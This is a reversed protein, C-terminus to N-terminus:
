SASPPTAVTCRVDPARGIRRDLTVLPAQILEALSGYSADHSSLNHRLEWVRPLPLEYPWFEIPLGVLDDHAQSAQDTSVTGAREFRRIINASEFAAFRGSRSARAALEDRVEDPVDRVTIAVPM